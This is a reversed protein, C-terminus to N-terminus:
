CFATCRSLWGKAMHGSGVCPRFANRVGFEASIGTCQPLFELKVCSNRLKGRNGIQCRVQRLLLCLHPKHISHKYSTKRQYRDGACSCLGGALSSQWQLWGLRGIREPGRHDDEPHEGGCHFRRETRERTLGVGAQRPVSSRLAAPPLLLSKRRHCCLSEPVCRLSPPHKRCRHRGQQLCRLIPRVTECPPHALDVEAVPERLEAAVGRLDSQAVETRQRRVAVEQQHGRHPQVAVVAVGQSLEAKRFWRVKELRLVQEKVRLEEQQHSSAKLLADYRNM